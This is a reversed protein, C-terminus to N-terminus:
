RLFGNGDSEVAITEQASSGRMMSTSTLVVPPAGPALSGVALPMGTGGFLEQAITWRPPVAGTERLVILGGDAIAVIDEPGSARLPAPIGAYGARLSTPLVDEAATTAGITFVRLQRPTRFYAWLVAEGTRGLAGGLDVREVIPDTSTLAPSWAGFSPTADLGSLTIRQIVVQNWEGGGLPRVLCAMAFTASSAIAGTEGVTTAACVDTDGGITPSTVLLAQTPSRLLLVQFAGFGHDGTAVIAPRGGPFVLAEGRQFLAPNGLPDRVDIATPADFTGDGHGRFAWLGASADEVVLADHADFLKGVWLGQPRIPTVLPGRALQGSAGFFLSLGDGGWGVLDVLGDEDFDGGAVANLTYHVRSGFRPEGSLAGVGYAGRGWIVEGGATVLDPAGDGDVDAFTACRVGADLPAPTVVASSTVRFATVALDVDITTLAGDVGNWAVYSTGSGAPTYAAVGIIGQGSPAPDLPPSVSWTRTGPACRAAIVKGRGTAVDKVHALLGHPAALVQAHVDYDDNSYSIIASTPIFAPYDTAALAVGDITANGYFVRIARSLDDNAAPDFLAIDTHGDADFDGSVMLRPSGMNVLAVCEIAPITAGPAWRLRVTGSAASTPGPRCLAGGDSGNTYFLQAGDSAFVRAIQSPFFGNGAPVHLAPELTGLLGTLYFRVGDEGDATVLDDRGDGDWDGVLVRTPGRNRSPDWDAPIGLQYADVIPAGSAIDIVTALNFQNDGLLVDGSRDRNLEGSYCAMVGGNTIPLRLNGVAAPNWATTSVGSADVVELVDRAGVSPGPTYIGTVRDVGGGSRDGRWGFGFTYPPKGGEALLQVAAGPRLDPVAGGPISLRLPAGVALAMTAVEGNHDAVRILDTVNGAAGARYAGVANVFAGGSPASGSCSPPACATWTYPPEGGVALITVQEGPAIRDSPSLLALRTGVRIQVRTWAAPDGTADKVVVVDTVEGTSGAVYTFTSPSASDIRGGSPGSEVEIAAYPTMGGSVSFLVTGGPAVGAIGPTISVRGHVSIRAVARAGAGDTVEVVDQASGASGATYHGTVEDVTADDGSLKGGAAFGFRHAGAGGVVAIDLRQRPAADIVPQVVALTDKPPIALDRQCASAVALVALAAFRRM